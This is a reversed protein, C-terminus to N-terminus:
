WESNLGLEAPNIGNDKGEANKNSMFRDETQCTLMIPKVERAATAQFVRSTSIIWFHIVFHTILPGNKTMFSYCSSHLYIM